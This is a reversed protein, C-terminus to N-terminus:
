ASPPEAPPDERTVDLGLFVATAQEFDTARGLRALSRARHVPQHLLAAAFQRLARQVQVDDPYRAAVDLLTAEVHARVARVAPTADREALTALLRATEAEVIIRGEEVATALAAPAHRGVAALDVLHVGPLEAVAPDVDRRLALDVLVSPGGGAARAARVAGAGVVSGQSGSCAVVVDARALEADFSEPTVAELGRAAAFAEARGSPSHVAVVGAGRERLAAVSAGAYSGTGVLLVRAGVLPRQEDALDLAVAVVSRGADALGTRRAAAKSVRSAGQFLAELDSSTAGVTRAQELARRVQGSVEREGIVMSDLGAAVTFLHHVTEDGAAARLHAAVDEVALGTAAAVADIAARRAAPVADDSAADLYVEFRNCTAVVVAGRVAGDSAIAPVVSRAGVSIQELLDLDLDRHSASLSTLVVLLGISGDGRNAPVIPGM